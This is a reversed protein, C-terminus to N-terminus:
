IFMDNDDKLQKNESIFRTFLLVALVFAIPLLPIQVAGSVSLLQKAFLLSLVNMAVNSLTTIILTRVCLVSMRQAAAVTEASYRNLQLQDLLKQAARIIFIGLIYPLIGLLYQLALFVYTGGLLHENGMNRTQLYALMSLFSQFRSGFALFVYYIALAFLLFNAYRLLQSIGGDYLLRVMCLVLYGALVSYFFTSLLAEAVQETGPIGGLISLQYPNIIFYLSMFLVVSLVPLLGDEWHLKRKKRVWLLMAVPLLCIVLYLVLAIKNNTPGSLSLIRLGMGIYNLPFGFIHPMGMLANPVLFLAECAIAVGSLVYWFYNRKM